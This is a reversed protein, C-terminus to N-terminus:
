WCLRRTREPVVGADGKYGHRMKEFQRDFKRHWRWIWNTKEEKEAEGEDQYLGIEAGLLFHMMTPLLTRSLFYSALMAFAVAMALPTFLYKAAGTLLVM